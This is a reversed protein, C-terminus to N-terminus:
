SSNQQESKICPTSQSYENIKKPGQLYSPSRSSMSKLDLRM